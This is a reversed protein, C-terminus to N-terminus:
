KRKSNDQGHQQHYELLKEAPSIGSIIKHPFYNWADSVLELINSLESADGGRDFMAVVKMMDDTEEENYIVDKIDALGFDSKTEKLLELLEKEIEKRKELIQQKSEIEM